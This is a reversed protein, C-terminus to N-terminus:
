LALGNGNNYMQLQQSLNPFGGIYLLSQDLQGPINLGGAEVTGGIEFASANNVINSTAMNSEAYTGTPSDTNFIRVKAKGMTAGGSTDARDVWCFVLNWAGAGIKVLPTSEVRTSASSPVDGFTDWIIANSGGRILIRYSNVKNFIRPTASADTCVFWIALGFTSTLPEEWAADVASGFVTGTTLANGLKGAAYAATGGSATLTHGGIADTLDGNFRWLGVANQKIAAVNVGQPRNMVSAVVCAYMPTLLM